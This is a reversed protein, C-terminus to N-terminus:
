RRSLRSAQEFLLQAAYGDAFDAVDGVAAKGDHLMAPYPNMAHPGFALETAGMRLVASGDDPNAALEALGETGQVLARIARRGASVRSVGVRALATGCEDALLVEALDEAECDVTGDPGTRRPWVVSSVAATVKWSGPVIWRLLDLLHVGQDSLAGGSHGRHRWPWATGPGALFDHHFDLEIRVIRGLRGDASLERLRAFAPNQRWQFTVFGRDGALEALRAAAATDHALPKDTVALLGASLAASLVAEHTDPPSVVAVADLNGEEIVALPDATVRPVGFRRALDRARAEDRGYGLVDVSVEPCAALWALHTAGFGTGVLM